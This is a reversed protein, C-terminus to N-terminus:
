VSPKSMAINLEKFIGAGSYERVLRRIAHDHFSKGHKESDWSEPVCETRTTKFVKVDPNQSVCRALQFACIGCAGGVAVFLPYAEVALWSFAKKGAGASM